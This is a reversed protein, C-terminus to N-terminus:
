SCEICVICKELCSDRGREKHFPGYLNMIVVFNRVLVVAQNLNILKYKLSLHSIQSVRKNDKYKAVNIDISVISLRPLSM